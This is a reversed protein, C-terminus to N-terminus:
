LMKIALPMRALEEVIHKRLAPSVGSVSVDVVVRGKGDLAAAASFSPLECVEDAMSRVCMQVAEEAARLRLAPKFIKAVNTLPMEPLITVWKPKAPAEHVREAVFALLEGTTVSAGPRLTVYLVPLEGAYADPAGVAAGLVVDPHQSAADEIMKPDINHGSRIILDKARGTVHLMQRDDLYGLDGTILWGDATFTKRTADENLYGAFVNPGKYLIM